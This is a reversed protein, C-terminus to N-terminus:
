ESEGNTTPEIRLRVLPIMVFTGCETLVLGETNKWDILRGCEEIFRTEELGDVWSTIQSQYSVPIDM